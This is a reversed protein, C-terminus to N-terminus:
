YAFDGTPMKILQLNSATGIPSVWTLMGGENQLEGLYYLFGTVYPRTGYKELSSSYVVCGVMVFQVKGVLPNPGKGRYFSKAWQSDRLVAEQVTSMRPGMGSNQVLPDHPFLIYGNLGTPKKPDFVKNANCWESQRKRAANASLDPELPIVDEWSVVNLAVGNGINEM